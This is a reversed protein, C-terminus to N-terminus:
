HKIKQNEYDVRKFGQAGQATQITIAAIGSQASATGTTAVQHTHTNFQQVLKNVSEVLANLKSTLEEIKIIGFNEGGDIVISEIDSFMSVFLEDSQGLRTIIVTSGNVPTIIIGAKDNKLAARKRVETYLTGSLSRCDIYDANPYNNEVVAVFSNDGTNGLAKIGNLIQQEYNSM